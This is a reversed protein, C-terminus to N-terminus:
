IWKNLLPIIELLRDTALGRLKSDKYNEVHSNLCLFSINNDSKLFYCKPFQTRGLQSNPIIMHLWYVNYAGFGQAIGLHKPTFQPSKDFFHKELLRQISNITEEITSNSSCHKKIFEDLEESFKPHHIFNIM